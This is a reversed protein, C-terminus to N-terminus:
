PQVLRWWVWLNEIILTKHHQLQYRHISKREIWILWFLALLKWTVDSHRWIHWFPVFWFICFKNKTMEKQDSKWRTQSLLKKSHITFCIFFTQSWFLCIFLLNKKRQFLTHQVLGKCVWKQVFVRGGPLTTLIQKIVISLIPLCHGSTM